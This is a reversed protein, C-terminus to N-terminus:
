QTFVIGIKDAFLKENTLLLKRMIKEFVNTIFYHFIRLGKINRKQTSIDGSGGKQRLVSMKLLSYALHHAIYNCGFSNQQLKALGIHFTSEINNLM